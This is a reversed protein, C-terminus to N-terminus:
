RQGEARWWAVTQRLGEELPTHATWGLRERARSVDLCRRPQGNPQSADWTFRGTYGMVAALQAALAAISVEQGAGLNCPEGGQYEQAALCLAESCDPAYLFERTPSGDGWLTVTDAGARLAEDIKRILAPIVHSKAPDFSDGPGYMNVPIMHVVDLGYEARYAQGLTLLARKAIGYPANTEEPYGNWLNEERFPVPTHKPYACVSGVTVVRRVGSLRCAELVNAGMLLNAHMFRGPSARNAGIGGCVAALHFVIEPRQAEFLDLTAAADTLDADRTNTARGHLGCAVLAAVLHTGLFGTGGTVLIDSM